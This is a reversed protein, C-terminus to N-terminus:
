PRVEKCQQPSHHAVCARYAESRNNSEVIGRAACTAACFAILLFVAVDAVHINGGIFSM